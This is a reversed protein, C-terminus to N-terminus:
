VRVRLRQHLWASGGIKSKIESVVGRGCVRNRQRAQPRPGNPATASDRTRAKEGGSLQTLTPM